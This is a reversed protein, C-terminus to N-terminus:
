ICKRRTGPTVNMSDKNARHLAAQVLSEQTYETSKLYSSCM